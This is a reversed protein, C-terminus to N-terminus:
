REIPEPKPLKLAYGGGRVRVAEANRLNYWGYKNATHPATKDVSDYLDAITVYGYRDIIEDLQDRVAEAEGYSDFIWDEYDFITRERPEERRRHDRDRAEEYFSRYSVKSGSNRNRSKGTTGWFAMEILDVILNFFTKKGTSILEDRMHTKIDGKDGAIFNEAFKSIGTKKKTKVTGTIVKGVKQREEKAEKQEAKYSHSNPKYEELQM